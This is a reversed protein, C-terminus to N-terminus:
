TLSENKKVVVKYSGRQDNMWSLFFKGERIFIPLPSADDVPEVASRGEEEARRGGGEERSAM